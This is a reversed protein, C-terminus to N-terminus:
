LAMAIGKATAPFSLGVIADAAMANLETETMMLENRNFRDDPVCLFVIGFLDLLM